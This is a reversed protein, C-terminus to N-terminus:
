LLILADGGPDAAAGLLELARIGPVPYRALLVERHAHVVARNARSDHVLLVVRDMGGDRAKLAIRRDLAQLDRLRTEAEVGVRAASWVATADWARLDGPIPLPVETQWRISPHCRERLRALLGAQAADRIPDGAPYPRVRLDQGLIAFARIAQDISLDPSLGREIRSYQTRSLGLVSAVDTQSLGAGLRADRLEATLRALAARSRAAGIDVVRERSGM